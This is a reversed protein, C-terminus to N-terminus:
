KKTEDKKAFLLAWRYILGCVPSLDRNPTFESFEAFEKDLVIIKEGDKLVKPARAGWSELVKSIVRSKKM